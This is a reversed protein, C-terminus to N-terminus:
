TSHRECIYVKFPLSMCQCILSLKRAHDAGGRKKDVAYDFIMSLESLLSNACETNAAAPLKRTNSSSSSRNLRWEAILSSMEVGLSLLVEERWEFRLVSELLLTELLILLDLEFYSLAIPDSCDCVSVVVSSSFM